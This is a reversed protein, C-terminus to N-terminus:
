IGVLAVSGARPPLHCRMESREVAHHCMAAIWAIRGFQQQQAIPHPVPPEVIMEAGVAVGRRAPRLDPGVRRHQAAVSGVKGGGHLGNALDAIRRLKIRRDGVRKGTALDFDRAAVAIEFQVHPLVAQQTWRFRGLEGVAGKAIQQEIAANSDGRGGSRIIRLSGSVLRCGSRNGGSARRMACAACRVCTM